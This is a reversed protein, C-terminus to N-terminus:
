WAVMGRGTLDDLFEWVDATVEQPEVDYEAVLLQIVGAVSRQGDLAAFITNAPGTLQLAEGEGGLWYDGRVLRIRTGLVRRPVDDLRHSTQDAMDTM